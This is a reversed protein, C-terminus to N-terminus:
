RRLKRIEDEDIKCGLSLRGGCAIPHVGGGM